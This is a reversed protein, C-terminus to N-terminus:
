RRTGTKSRHPGKIDIYPRESGNHQKKVKTLGRVGGWHTTQVPKPSSSSLSTATGKTTTVIRIDPSM